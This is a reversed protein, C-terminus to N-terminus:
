PPFLPLPPSQKAQVSISVEVLARIHGELHARGAKAVADVLVNGIVAHEAALPADAADILGAGAGIKRQNQASCTGLLGPVRRVSLRVAVSSSALASNSAVSATSPTPPSPLPTM